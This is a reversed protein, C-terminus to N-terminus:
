RSQVSRVTQAAQALAPFYEQIRGDAIIDALPTPALIRVRGDQVSIGPALDGIRKLDMIVRPAIRGKRLGVVLDTGGALVSAETGFQGRIDFAESLQRPRLYRFPPAMGAARSVARAAAMTLM